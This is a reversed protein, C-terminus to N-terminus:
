KLNKLVREERADVKQSINANNYKSYKELLPMMLYLVTVCSTIADDDSIVDKFLREPYWVRWPLTQHYNGITWINKM